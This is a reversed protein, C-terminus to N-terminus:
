NELREFGDVFIPAGDTPLRYLHRINEEPKTATFYFYSSDLAVDTETVWHGTADKGAEVDALSLDLISMRILQSPHNSDDGLDFVSALVWGGLATSSFEFALDDQLPFTRSQAIEIPAVQREVDVAFIGVRNENPIDAAFLFTRQDNLLQSGRLSSFGDALDITPTVGDLSFLLSEDAVIKGDLTPEWRRVFSDASISFVESPNDITDIGYTQGNGLVFLVRQDPGISGLSLRGAVNVPTPPESGDTPAWFFGDQTVFYFRNGDNTLRRYFVDLPLFASIPRLPEGQSLNAAVASGDTPAAYYSELGEPTRQRFNVWALNESVGYWNASGAMNARPILVPGVTSDLGKSYLQPVANANAERYVVRGNGVYAFPSSRALRDTIPVAPSDTDLASSLLATIGGVQADAASFVVRNSKADVRFEDVFRQSENNLKTGVNRRDVSYLEPTMEREQDALYVVRRNAVPMFREVQGSQERTGALLSTYGPMDISVNFMPTTNRERRNEPSYRLHLTNSDASFSVYDSRRISLQFNELLMQAATSATLSALFLDADIRPNRDAATVIGLLASNPSFVVELVTHGNDIPALIERASVVEAVSFVWLRDNDLVAVNQGDPSLIVEADLSLSVPFQVQSPPANGDVSVVHIQFEGGRQTSVVVLGNVAAPWYQLLADETELPPNLRVATGGGDIRTAFLEETDQDLFNGRFLVFDGYIVPKGPTSLDWSTSPSLLTPYTFGDLPMSFVGTSAGGSESRGAFVATDEDETLSFICVAGLSFPTLRQSGGLGSANQRYLHLRGNAFRAFYLVESNDSYRFQRM